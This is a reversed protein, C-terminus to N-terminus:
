KCYRPVELNVFPNMMPDQETLQQNVKKEFRPRTYLAYWHPNSKPLPEIM